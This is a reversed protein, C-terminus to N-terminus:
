DFKTTEREVEVALNSQRDSSGNGVEREREQEDM